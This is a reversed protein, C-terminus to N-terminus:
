EELENEDIVVLDKLDEEAEDDYDEDTDDYNDEEPAEDIIEEETEPDDDDEEDDDDELKVVKDSKYKSKLDWRGDDLLVFNKDTAIATYYDAIKAEFTKKPLGLLEIIKKFLDATSMPKKNEELILRTLEKNSLLELEEKPMKSVKM